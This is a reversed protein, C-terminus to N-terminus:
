TPYKTTPLHMGVYGIIVRGSTEALFHIRWNCFKLKIHRDFVREQGDPCRFTRKKRFNSNNMTSESEGSEDLGELSLSGADCSQCKQNLTSLINIIHILKPDGVLIDILQKEVCDCFDIRDFLKSRDLWLQRGDEIDSSIQERIWPTIKEIHRTSSAHKIEIKSFVIEGDPEIEELDLLLTSKDWEPNSALSIAISQTIAAFRLGESKQENFSVDALDFQSRIDPSIDINYPSKTALLILFNREDRDVERDNRWKAISYEPLLEIYNLDENTRLISQVGSKIAERLTDILNSMLERAQFKDIGPSSISLENLVMEIDM